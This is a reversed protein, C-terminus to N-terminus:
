IGLSHARWRGMRPLNRRQDKRDTPRDNRRTICDLEGSSKWWKWDQSGIDGQCRGTFGTLQMLTGGALM